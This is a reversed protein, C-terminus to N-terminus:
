SRTGSAGAESTFLAQTDVRPIREEKCRVIGALYPKKEIQADEQAPLLDSVDDALLGLWCSKQCLVIVKQEEDSSKRNAGLLAALDCLPIIEGLHSFVGAIHGPAGPVKTINVSTRKLIEHVDSIPVCYPADGLHFVLVKEM